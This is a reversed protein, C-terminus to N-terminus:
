FNEAFQDSNKSGRQGGASQFGVTATHLAWDRVNNKIVIKKTM